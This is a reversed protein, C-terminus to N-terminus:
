TVKQLEELTPVQIGAQYEGCWDHPVVVPYGMHHLYIPQGTAENTAALFSALRPPYRHCVYKVDKHAGTGLEAFRCKSCTNITLISSM